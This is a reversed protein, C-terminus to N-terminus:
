VFGLGYMLILLGKDCVNLWFESMNIIYCVFVVNLFLINKFYLM